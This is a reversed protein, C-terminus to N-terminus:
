VGPGTGIVVTLSTKPLVIAQGARAKARVPPRNRTPHSQEGRDVYAYQKTSYQVIERAAFPTDHGDRRFAITAPHARRSDRNVIMVSWTGDPRRLPYATVWPRGKADTLDVSARYLKHPADTQTAWDHTMMFHAFYAPMRNRAQGKPDSDYLMM